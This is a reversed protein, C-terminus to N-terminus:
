LTNKDAISNLEITKREAKPSPKKQCEMLLVLTM